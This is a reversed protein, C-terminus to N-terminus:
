RLVDVLLVNVVVGNLVTVEKVFKKYLERKTTEPVVQLFESDGFTKVLEKQLRLGLSAAHTNQQQLQQIKLITKEIADLIISDQPLSRLVDLRSKLEIIEPTDERDPQSTVVYNNLEFAKKCLAQDVADIIKLLPVATKNTCVSNGYIRRKKCRVGMAKKKDHVYCKSGCCGCILQGSLLHLGVTNSTAGDFNRGWLRRNESLRTEIQQYVEKSILPQHTNERIDWKDPNVRNFKVNYRTHGQLVPNRLWARLGPPSFKINYKEIFFQITNRLSAKPILFYDIIESAILWHTKGSGEHVSTDPIYKGDEKAYGFPPQCAKNQDRFHALGHNVRSQLLRSEFEALGAMQNLSFWGFPSSSDEVPADLIVLKINLSELLSVTKAITMVSRALRDIRTIVVETIDGERCMALMKNFNKRRDSRGSEIDSFILSCGAKEIRATQQVLADEQEFKSVRTYGVRM